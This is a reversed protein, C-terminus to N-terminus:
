GGQADYPEDIRAMRVGTFALARLERTVYNLSPWGM